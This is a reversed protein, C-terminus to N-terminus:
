PDGGGAAPRRRFRAPVGPSVGTEIARRLAQRLDAEAHGHEAASDAIRHLDAIPCGICHLRWDIFVRITPPWRTMIANLSLGDLEDRM